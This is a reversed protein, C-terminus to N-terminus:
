FHLHVKSHAHIELYQNSQPKKGHALTLVYSYFSQKSQSKLLKEWVFVKM